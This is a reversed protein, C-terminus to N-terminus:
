RASGLVLSGSAPTESGEWVSQSNAARPTQSHRCPVGNCAAPLTCQMLGCLCCLMSSSSATVQLM